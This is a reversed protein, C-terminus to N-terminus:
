HVHACVEEDVEGDDTIMDLETSDDATGTRDDATSEFSVDAGYGDYHPFEHMHAIANSPVLSATATATTVFPNTKGSSHSKTANM